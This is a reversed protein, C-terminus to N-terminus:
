PNIIEVYFTTDYKLADFAIVVQGETVTISNYSIAMTTGNDAYPKIVSTTHIHSDTITCSTDDALQSVPDSMHIVTMVPSTDTNENIVLKIKTATSQAPFTATLTTGSISVGTCKLFPKDEAYLNYREDETIRSDTFTVSTANAALTAVLVIPTIGGGYIVGGRMIYGM